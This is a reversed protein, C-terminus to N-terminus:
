REDLLINIFNNWNVNQEVYERSNKGILKLKIKALDERKVKLIDLFNENHNLWSPSYQDVNTLVSCGKMMAAYVSTNGARFASDFFATFLDSKQLFYNVSDDSLFGLFQIKGEYMKGLKESIINLDGFHVKEHFATSIRLAYDIGNESLIKNLTQYHNIQIKHAMGFSFINLKDDFNISEGSLLSPCFLTMVNNHIRKVQYAIEDNGCFINNSGKVLLKEVPLDDFKHLFVDYEINNNILHKGVKEIM